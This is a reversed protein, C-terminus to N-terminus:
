QRNDRIWMWGEQVIMAKNLSAWDPAPCRGQIFDLGCLLCVLADLADTAKNALAVEALDSPIDINASLGKLIDERLARQEPRKYGRSPLGACRLTAAPYVEIASIPPLSESQWALPISRGLAQQLEALIDLASISARAIKDAGVDLPQGYGLSRAYRDTYRRFLLNAKTDGTENHHLQVAQGAQHSQLSVSLQRPWGLPADIALLIREQAQLAEALVAQLYLLDLGQQVYQLHLQAPATRRAIALGINKHNVACDLGILLM